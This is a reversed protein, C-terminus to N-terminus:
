VCGGGEVQPVEVGAEVGVRVRDIVRQALTIGDLQHGVAAVQQRAVGVAGEDVLVRLQEAGVLLALELRLVAVRQRVLVVRRAEYEVIRRQMCPHTPTIAPASVGFAIPSISAPGPEAGARLTM